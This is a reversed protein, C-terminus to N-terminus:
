AAQRELEATVTDKSFRVLLAALLNREERSLEGCPRLADIRAKRLWGRVTRLGLFRVELLFAGVPKDEIREPESLLLMAALRCDESRCKLMQQRVAPRPRVSLECVSM